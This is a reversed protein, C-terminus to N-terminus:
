SSCRPSTSSRGCRSGSGFDQQVPTLESGTRSDASVARLHLFQGSMFFRWAEYHSVNKADVDQGVWDDGRLLERRDFNAYPVPWGRMRVAVAPIIEDLQEYPVRDEFVHGASDRRGLPRAIPNQRITRESGPEM